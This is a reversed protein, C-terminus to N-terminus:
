LDMTRLVFSVRRNRSRGEPSSNEALPRTDAYGIARVRDPALGQDILHRTVRTARATSLEWNSPYRATAIPRDDSHGEVSLTHPQSKLAAALDNLLREGGGTLDASAPAFLISDSIELDLGGPQMSVEIRDGLGSDALEALLREFPDPQAPAIKAQAIQRVPDEGIELYLSEPLVLYDVFPPTAPLADDAVVAQPSVAASSQSAPEPRGESEPSLEPTSETPSEAARVANIPRTESIVTVAAARTEAEFSEDAADRGEGILQHQHALLLVFLTLLLTLVDIFSLLWTDQDASGQELAQEWPLGAEAGQVAAGGPTSQWNTAVSSTSTM